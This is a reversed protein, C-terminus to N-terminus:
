HKLHSLQKHVMEKAFDKEEQETYARHERISYNDELKDIRFWGHVDNSVVYDKVFDYVPQGFKGKILFLFRTHYYMKKM